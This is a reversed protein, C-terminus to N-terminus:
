VRSGSTTGDSRSGLGALTASGAAGDWRAARRLLLLAILCTPFAVMVGVDMWWMLHYTGIPVETYIVVDSHRTRHGLFHRGGEVKGQVADGGLVMTMAFWTVVYLVGTWSVYRLFQKM